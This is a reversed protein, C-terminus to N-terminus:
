KGIFLETEMDEETKPAKQQGLQILKARKAIECAAWDDVLDGLKVEVGYITVPIACAAEREAKEEKERESMPYGEGCCSM